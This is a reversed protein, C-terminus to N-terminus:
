PTFRRRGLLTVLLTFSDANALIVRARKEENEMFVDRAEELTSKGTIKLVRGKADSDRRRLEVPAKGPAMHMFLEERPTTPSLGNQQKAFAQKFARYVGAHGELLDLFPACSELYAIDETGNVVHSLEHLLVAARFHAGINFSNQGPPPPRLRYFPTSFFVESLFIRKLPDSSFIFASPNESGYRNRGVVFRESSFPSLSPDLLAQLMQSVDQNLSKLLTDTPAAVGFFDKLIQETPAPLQGTAPDPLLNHRCDLLLHRARSHAEGIRRARDPYRQRIEAMGSAETRFTSDIENDVMRTRLRTFWGGGHLGIDLIWAGGTNLRISPGQEGHRILYQCDPEFRAQYVKGQLVVYTDLSARDRFVRSTPDWQWDILSRGSVEFPALRRQLEATWHGARWSFAEIPVSTTAQGLDQAINLSEGLSEYPVRRATILLGLGALFEAM